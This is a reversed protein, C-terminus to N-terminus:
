LVRRLLLNVSVKFNPNAIFSKDAPWEKFFLKVESPQNNVVFWKASGFYQLLKLSDPAIEFRGLVVNNKSLTKKEPYCYGQVLNSSIEYVTERLAHSKFSFAIDSLAVEWVGDNINFYDPCLKYSLELTKPIDGVINISKLPNNM